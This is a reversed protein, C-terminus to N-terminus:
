CGGAEVPDGNKLRVHYQTERLGTKDAPTGRPETNPGIRDRIYMLSRGSLMVWLVIRRNASSASSSM